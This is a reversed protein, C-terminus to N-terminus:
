FHTRPMNYALFTLTVCTAITLEFYFFGHYVNAFDCDQTQFYFAPMIIHGIYPTTRM